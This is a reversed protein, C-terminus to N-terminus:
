PCRWEYTAKDTWETFCAGCPALSITVGCSTATCSGGCSCSWTGYPAAVPFNNGPAGSAFGTPYPDSNFRGSGMPGCYAPCGTYTTDKRGWRVMYHYAFGGSINAVYGALGGSGCSTCIVLGTQSTSGVFAWVGGAFRVVRSKTGQKSTYTITAYAATGTTCPLALIEGTESDISGKSIAWTGKCGNGITAVDGVSMPETIDIEGLLHESPEDDDIYLTNGWLGGFGIAACVVRRFTSEESGSVEAYDYVPTDGRYDVAIVKRGSKSISVTNETTVELGKVGNLPEIYDEYENSGDDYSYWWAPHEDTAGQAHVGFLTPITERIEAAADTSIETATSEETVEVVSNSYSFTAIREEANITVKWLQENDVTQAETGSQNFFFPVRPKHGISQEGLLAWGGDERMYAQYYNGSRPNTPHKTFISKVIIILKGACKAAGLVQGGHDVEADSYPYWTNPATAAIKGAKFIYKKFPTFQSYDGTLSEIYYDLQTLGPIELYQDLPFYRSPPGCWTLIEGDPGKWDINGYRIPPNSVYHWNHKKDLSIGKTEIESNEAPYCYGAANEIVSHGEASPVATKISFSKLEKEKNREAFLFGSFVKRIFSDDAKVQKKEEEEPVFISVDPLGFCLKIEIYCGGALQLLRRDQKLNNFKMQEALIIVQRKALGWLERAKEKDGLFKPEM